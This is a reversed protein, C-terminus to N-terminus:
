EQMIVGDEEIQQANNAVFTKCCTEQCNEAPTQPLKQHKPADFAAPGATGITDSTIMIENAGCRNNNKWYHCNSIGCYVDKPM